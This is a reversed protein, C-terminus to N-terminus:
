KPSLADNSGGSNVSQKSKYLDSVVLAQSGLNRQARSRTAGLVPCDQSDQQSLSTQGMKASRQRYRSNQAEANAATGHAMHYTPKFYKGGQNNSFRSHHNYEYPNHRDSGSNVVAENSFVQSKRAEGNRLSDQVAM